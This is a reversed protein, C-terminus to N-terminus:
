PRDADHNEPVFVVQKSNEGSTATYPSCAADVFRNSRERVDILDM